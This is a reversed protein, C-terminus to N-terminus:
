AFSKIIQKLSFLSFPKHMFSHIGEKKARHELAPSPDASIMIVHIEKFIIPHRQLYELGTGDPLNNDLFVVSPHDELKKEAESLSFACDVAYDDRVLAMKLLACLDTEDDIILITKM